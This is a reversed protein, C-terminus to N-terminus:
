EETRHEKPPSGVGKIYYWKAQNHEELDRSFHHEGTTSDKVLFYWYDTQAPYFSASLSIKGPNTVPGPPLGHWMYTNYPSDIEKMETTIKEPHPQGYIETIIYEITACSELGIRSGLRNYFVSAIIPAEEPIRYEKEIISALIVKRHLAKKDMTEYDPMIDKINRFFNAIMRDVIEISTLSDNFFYTDPFLYGELNKAPIAYKNLLERSQIAELLESATTIGSEEFHLAIKTKTWGEPITIKIQAQKGSVLLNHIDITSYEKKIKYYGAIFAKETKLIKSILRLFFSSRILGRSELDRSISILNEGKKIIFTIDDHHDGSPTSNLYLIGICGLIIIVLCICLAIFIFKIIKKGM